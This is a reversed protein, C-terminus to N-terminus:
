SCLVKWHPTILASLYCVETTQLQWILAVTVSSRLFTISANLDAKSGDQEIAGQLM